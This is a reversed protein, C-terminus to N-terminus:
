STSMRNSVQVSRSSIAGDTMLKCAGIKFWKDGFERDIGMKIIEDIMDEYIIGYVRLKMQNNEVLHLYVPMTEFTINDHISTIGLEIAEDMGLSIGKIFEEFTPRIEKKDSLEVDRM